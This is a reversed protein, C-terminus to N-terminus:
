FHDVRGWNMSDGGNFDAASPKLAERELRMEIIDALHGPVDPYSVQVL